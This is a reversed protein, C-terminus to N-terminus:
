GPCLIGVMDDEQPLPYDAQTGVSILVERRRPMHLILSRTMGNSGGVATSQTRCRYSPGYFEAVFRAQIDRRFLKATEIGSSWKDLDDLTTLMGGNGMLNWSVGRDWVGRHIPDGWAKAGKACEQAIPRKGRDLVYGTATMGLPQFVHSRVYAEYLQGSVQEVIAALLAFGTNSYSEDTGPAFDLKSRWLRRFFEAKTLPAYDYGEVSWEGQSLARAQAGLLNTIGSRHSVLQAVSINRKDEPADPFIDGLRDDLKLRGDQVLTYIAAATFLKTLSGADFVADAPLPIRGTCSLPGYTRTAVQDGVRYRVLYAGGDSSASHFLQDLQAVKSDFTPQAAPAQPQAPATAAAFLIALPSMAVFSKM